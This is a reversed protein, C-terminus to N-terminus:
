DDLQETSLNSSNLAAKMALSTFTKMVDVLEGDQIYNPDSATAGAGQLRTKFSAALSGV